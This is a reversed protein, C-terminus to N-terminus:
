RIINGAGLTYDIGEGLESRAATALNVASNLAAIRADPTRAAIAINVQGIAGVLSAQAAAHLESPADRLVQVADELEYFSYQALDITVEGLQAGTFQGDFEGSGFDAFLEVASELRQLAMDINFATNLVRLLRAVQNIEDDTLVVAPGSPSAGFEATTYFAVAEEITVFANTHFFPGTDAAEILPTSNFTGDGFIDDVGDGDTDSGEEGFGGDSPTLALDVDLLRISEVGTDFNRNNGDAITNAGANAHCGSCRGGGQFVAIGAQADADTLTLSNLDIENTRGLAMQYALALDLEQDNPLTFSTGPTRSLDSTFHQTVAGTLFDRLTGDNPAGDGSWGTRELPPTTTGDGPSVSLSTALSLTHQISRLTFKNELDDQGDVNEVIMAFERLIEPSELTSLDDDHEAVFLADDDSLTAIFEPSITFNDEARHCTGCTRGNGDFTARFFIDAGACIEASVQGTIVRPDNNCAELREDATQALGFNSYCSLSLGLFGSVVTHWRNIKIMYVGLLFYKHIDKM